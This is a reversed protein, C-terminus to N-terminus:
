PIKEIVSPLAKIATEIGKNRSILGFTLLIKKGELKFEKKVKAKDFHIDPVGHEIFSIKDLPVGYIEDLFGIAMKSMVVVKTAMKCIEKMVAKENYSPSKLVTHLIVMVPIELRHLLPLIYVGNQGGYIGFEHELICYDAGSLNIFNAAELYDAQQEQQITLKVEPGYPYDQEHDSIAVVFGTDNTEHGGTKVISHLLNQTFTGIGCVRPPYTSINAIKM